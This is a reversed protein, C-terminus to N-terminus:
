TPATTGLARGIARLLADESFPKQLCDVAGRELVRKRAHEDAHATVFVIPVGSGSAILREQLEFGSMGPMRIDLVLCDTETLRGSSLAEEASAFAHAHFGASRLLGRLAERLSADDDVVCIRSPNSVVPKEEV